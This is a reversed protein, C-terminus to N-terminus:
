SEVESGETVPTCFLVWNKTRFNVETFTKERYVVVTGDNKIYFEQNTDGKDTTFRANPDRWVVYGVIGQDNVDEFQGISYPVSMYHTMGRKIIKSFADSQQKTLKM